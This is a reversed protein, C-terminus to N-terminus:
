ALSRPSNHVFEPFNAPIQVFSQRPQPFEDFFFNRRLRFLARRNEQTFNRIFQRFGRSPQFLPARRPLVVCRLNSSSTAGSALQERASSVASSNRPCISKTGPTRPRRPLLSPIRRAYARQQCGGWQAPKWEQLSPLLLLASSTLRLAVWPLWLEASAFCAPLCRPASKYRLPFHKTTHRATERFSLTSRRLRHCSYISPPAGSAAM